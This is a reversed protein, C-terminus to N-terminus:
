PSLPTADDAYKILFNLIDLPRLDYAFMIFLTPEIGSGQIISRNIPLKSSLHFGLKTAQNRDTLFSMIWEIIFVPTELRFLKPALIMHDVTDFAKSFDTLACRVYQNPELLSRIRYTLDDPACTTSGTPKYAYQDYFSSSRLLPTLYNRVLVKEFTRSLISTVSIPQLDGAGTVPSTKPVPTIHATKWVLPVRCQTLSFNVLKAVVPGLEVACTKYMWSPIGEPGPSTSRIRGLVMVFFDASFPVFESLDGNGFSHLNDDLADRCYYPDTSIDAFYANLDNATLALGSSEFSSNSAVQSWNRNSRLLQWLQKTDSATAKSL